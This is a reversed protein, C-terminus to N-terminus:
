VGIACQEASAARRADANGERCRHALGPSGEVVRRAIKRSLCEEERQFPELVLGVRALLCQERDVEAAAGPSVGRLQESSAPAHERDVGLFLRDLPEHLSVIETGLAQAAEFRLDCPELVRCQGARAEDVRAEREGEARGLMKPVDPLPDDRRQLASPAEAPLEETVAVAPRRPGFHRKLGTLLGPFQQAPHGQLPEGLDVFVPLSREAVGLM